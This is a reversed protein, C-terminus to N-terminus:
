PDRSVRHRHLNIAVTHTGDDLADPREVADGHMVHGGCGIDLVTVQEHRGAETAAEGDAIGHRSTEATSRLGPSAKARTMAMGVQGGQVADAVRQQDETRGGSEVAAIQFHGTLSAPCANSPLERMVNSAAATSATSGIDIAGQGPPTGLPHQQYEHVPGHSQRM